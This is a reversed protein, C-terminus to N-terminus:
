DEYLQISSEQAKTNQTESIGPRSSGPSRKQPGASWSQKEHAGPDAKAVRVYILSVQYFGYCVYGLSDILLLANKLFDICM